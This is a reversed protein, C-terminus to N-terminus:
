PSLLYLAGHDGVAIKGHATIPTNWGQVGMTGLTTGNAATSGAVLAGTDGDWGYLTNNAAWVIANSTGDTTTVM